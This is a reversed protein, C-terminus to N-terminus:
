RSFRQSLKLKKDIILEVKEYGRDVFSRIFKNYVINMGIVILYSGVVDAPTHHGVYVRSFGVTLSVLILLLGIKREGKKLGFTMSMTATAHDSPFSSDPVHPYLLTVKNHIFPRPVYFFAGLLAAIVLNMFTFVAANVALKRQAIDKSVFGFLYFLLLFGAFIFIVDQSFFLMIADLISNKGALNNILRFLEMNMLHNREIIQLHGANQLANTKM